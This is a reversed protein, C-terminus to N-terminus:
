GGTRLVSSDFVSGCEPCRRGELGHMDYRCTPCEGPQVHAVRDVFVLFRRTVVVVNIVLLVGVVLAGVSNLVGLWLVRTRVYPPDELYRASARALWDRRHAARVEAPFRRIYLGHIRDYTYPLYLSIVERAALGDEVIEVEIRDAGTVVVYDWVGWRVPPRGVHRVRAALKLEETAPNGVFTLGDDSRFLSKAPLSFSLATGYTSNRPLAKVMSSRYMSPEGIARWSAVLLLVLLVTTLPSRLLSRVTAMLRRNPRPQGETRAGAAMGGALRRRPAGGSGMARWPARGNGPVETGPHGRRLGRGSSPRIARICEIKHGIGCRGARM